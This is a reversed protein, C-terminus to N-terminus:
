DFKKLNEEFNAILASDGSKKALPLGTKLAKKAADEDGLKLEARALANYAWAKSGSTAADDDILEKLANKALTWDDHELHLQALQTRLQVGLPELADGAAGAAEVLSIGKKFAGAADDARDRMEAYIIGRRLHADAALRIDPPSLSAALKAAELLNDLGNGAWGDRAATVGVAYQTAALMAKRPPNQAQLEELAKKCLYYAGNSGLSMNVQCLNARIGGIQPTDSTGPVGIKELIQVATSYRASAENLRGEAHYVRALQANSRASLTPINLAAFGEAAAKCHAVTQDLINASAGAQSGFECLGLHGRAVLTPSGTQKAVSLARAYLRGAETRRGRVRADKASLVLADVLAPRNKMEQFRAVQGALYTRAEAHRGQNQLLKAIRLRNRLKAPVSDARDFQQQAAKLLALARAPNGLKEYLGATKALSSGIALPTGGAKLSAIAARYDSEPGVPRGRLQRVLRQNISCLAGFVEDGQAAASKECIALTDEASRLKGRSAEIHGTTLLLRGIAQDLNLKKALSLAVDIRAAARKYDGQEWLLSSWGLAAEAKVPSDDPASEFAREYSKGAQRWDGSHYQRQARALWDTPSPETKPESANENSAKAKTEQPNAEQAFSPASFGLLAAACIAYTLRRTKM